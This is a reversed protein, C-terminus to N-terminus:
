AKTGPLKDARTAAPGRGEDPQPEAAVKVHNRSRRPPRNRRVTMTGDAVLLLVVVCLPWQYREVPIFRERSEGPARRPGAVLKAQLLETAYPENRVDLLVGGSQATLREILTRDPRSLVVQGGPGRLPLTEGQSSEIPITAGQPTGVLLCHIPVGEVGARLAMEEPQPQVGLDDGDTILVLARDGDRGAPLADLAMRLARGLDTGPEHAAFGPAHELIELFAPIDGTCPCVLEASGAFTVLGVREGALRSTLDRILGLARSLRNPHLDEALMSRSVDLVLLIDASRRVVSQEQYGWQPRALAMALGALVFAALSLAIRCRSRCAAGNERWWRPGLLAGLRREDARCRRLLLAGAVALVPLVLLWGEAGFSM